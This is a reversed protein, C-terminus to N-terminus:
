CVPGFAMARAGKREAAGRAHEAGEFRWYTVPNSAGCENCQLSQEGLM